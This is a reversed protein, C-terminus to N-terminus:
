YLTSIDFERIEGEELDSDLSGEDAGMQYLVDSHFGGVESFPDPRDLDVFRSTQYGRVRSTFTSFNRLSRFEGDKIESILGVSALQSVSLDVNCRFTRVQPRLSYLYHYKADFGVHDVKEGGVRDVEEVYGMQELFSWAGSRQVTLTEGISVGADFDQRIDSERVERTTFQTVCEDAFRADPDVGGFFRMACPFKVAVDRFGGTCDDDDWDVRGQVIGRRTLGTREHIARYIAFAFETQAPTPSGRTFRFFNRVFTTLVQCTRVTIDEHSPPRYQHFDKNTSDAPVLYPLLPYILMHALQVNSGDYLVQRKLYLAAQESTYVKTRQIVGLSEAIELRLAYETPTRYIVGVDDGPVQEEHRYELNTSQALAHPLTCTVLNGPVGLFGACQHRFVQNSFDLPVTSGIYFEPFDNAIRIYEGILGGVNKLQLSLDEGLCIIEVDSFEESLARLFPEHESFWSTFSTLDYFLFNPPEVPRKSARLWDPQV